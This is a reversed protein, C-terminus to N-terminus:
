APTSGLSEWRELAGLLEDEIQASRQALATARAADKAFLSGDALEHHISKQEAELADILAPLAELERQEKYSLKRRAATTRWVHTTTSCRGTGPSCRRKRNNSGTACITAM